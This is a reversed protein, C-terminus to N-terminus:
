GAIEDGKGLAIADALRIRATYLAQGIIAGEIGAGAHARLARLDSLDAIGGSAIIQLGTSRALEAVAEADIGQLMGDREIDTYVARLIGRKAMQSALEVASVQSREQWGRTAVRGGQADIGVVVQEAGWAQVAESVLAPNEIAATGLVVRKVGLALAAEVSALERLGGGFQVPVSVAALIARLADQNARTNGGFAGDLNVVHLWEAGQRAWEVAVRAPSDSYVTEDEARGQRLRVVRGGRLDIAPLIIM